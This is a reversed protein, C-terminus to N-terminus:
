RRLRLALPMGGIAGTAVGLALTLLLVDIGPLPIYFAAFLPWLLV